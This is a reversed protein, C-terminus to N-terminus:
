VWCFIPTSPMTPSRVHHVGTPRRACGERRYSAEDRGLPAHRVRLRPGKRITGTRQIGRLRRRHVESSRCVMKATASSSQKRMRPNRFSFRRRSAAGACIPIRFAKASPRSFIAYAKQRSRRANRGANKHAIAPKVPLLPAASLKFVVGSLASVDYCVNSVIGCCAHPAGLLPDTRPGKLDLRASLPGCTDGSPSAITGGQSEAFLARTEL